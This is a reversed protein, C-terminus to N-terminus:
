SGNDDDHHLPGAPQGNPSLPQTPAQPLIPTTPERSINRVIDPQRRTWYAGIAARTAPLQADDLVDPKLKM